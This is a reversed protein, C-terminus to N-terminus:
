REANSRGESSAAKAIKGAKSINDLNFAKTRAAAIVANLVSFGAKKKQQPEVEQLEGSEVRQTVITRIKELANKNLEDNAEVGGMAYFEELKVKVFKGKSYEFGIEELSTCGKFADREITTVADSITVDVLSTCDLFTSFSITKISKPIKVSKLNKCRNFAGKHIQKVSYPITISTLKTCDQFAGPMIRAVGSWFLKPDNKLYELDHNTIKKIEGNTIKPIEGKLIRKITTSYMRKYIRNIRLNADFAKLKQPANSIRARELRSFAELAKQHRYQNFTGSRGLMKDHNALRQKYQSYDKKQKKANPLGNLFKCIERGDDYLVSYNFLVDLHTGIPITEPADETSPDGAFVGHMGYKPDDLSVLTIRHNTRLSNSDKKNVRKIFAHATKQDGMASYYIALERDSDVGITCAKIGVMSLLARLYEAKGVCCGANKAVTEIYSQSSHYLSQGNSEWYYEMNSVIKHCLLYQEYPSLQNKESIKKVVDAFRTLKENVKMMEPFSVLVDNFKMNYSRSTPSSGALITEEFVMEGGNKSLAEHNEILKMAEERNFALDKDSCKVVVKRGANIDNNFLGGEICKKLEPSAIEDKSLTVVTVPRNSEFNGIVREYSVGQIYGGMSPAFTKTRAIKNALYDLNQDM